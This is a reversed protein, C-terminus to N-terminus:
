EVIDNRYPLFFSLSIARLARHTFSLICNNKRSILIRLVLEFVTKEFESGLIKLAKYTSRYLPLVYPIKNLRVEVDPTRKEPPMLLM